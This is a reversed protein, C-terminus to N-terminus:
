SGPTFTLAGSVKFVIEATLVDANSVEQIECSKMYGEFLHYSGDVYTIKFTKDLGVFAELTDHQTKDVEVVASAEGNELLGATFEAATSTLHSIEIDPVEAKPPQISRVRAISTTATGGSAGYYLTTGKGKITAM